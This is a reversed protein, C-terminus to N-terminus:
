PSPEGNEDASPAPVGSDAVGDPASSRARSIGAAAGGVVLGTLVGGTVVRRSVGRRPVVKAASLHHYGRWLQWKVRRDDIARTVGIRRTRRAARRLHRVAARQHRRSRPDRVIRAADLTAERVSAEMQALRGPPSPSRRLGRLRIRTISTAM